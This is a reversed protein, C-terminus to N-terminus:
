VIFCVSEACRCTGGGDRGGERRGERGGWGERGGERVEVFSTSRVFGLGRGIELGVDLLRLM